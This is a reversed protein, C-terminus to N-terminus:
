HVLADKVKIQCRELVEEVLNEYDRFGQSSKSYHQIPLHMGAAVALATNQNIITKFLRQPVAEKLEALSDESEKVGQRYFTGVLGLIDLAKIDESIDKVKMALPELGQLSLFELKVPILVKDAAALSNVFLISFTPMTDILIFDFDNRIEEIKKSLYKYGKVMDQQMMYEDAKLNENTPLVFLRDFKTTQVVQDFKKRGIVWDGVSPLPSEDSQLGFYITLSAQPDFDILLTKYGKLALGAGLNVCTTTKAVGGKQNALSLVIGM